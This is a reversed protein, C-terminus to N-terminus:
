KRESETREVRGEIVRRDAALVERQPVVWRAANAETSQWWWYGDQELWAAVSL